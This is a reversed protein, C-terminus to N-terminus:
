DIIFKDYEFAPRNSSRSKRFWKVTGPNCENTSLPISLLPNVQMVCCKWLGNIANKLVISGLGGVM